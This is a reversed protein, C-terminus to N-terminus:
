IYVGTGFLNLLTDAQATFVVPQIDHETALKTTQPTSVKYKLIVVKVSKKAFL